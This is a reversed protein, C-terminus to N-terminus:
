SIFCLDKDLIYIKENEVKYDESDQIFIISIKSYYAQKCIMKMESPLFYKKLDILCLVTAGTLSSIVKIYECLLETLNSCSNSDIQVHYLKFFGAIDTHIDFGINNYPIQETIADLFSVAASDVDSLLEDFEMSVTKLKDYLRNLIKRDNFDIGFPNIVVEMNKDIRVAKDRESLLFEGDGGKAQTNIDKVIEAFCRPNEVILSVISDEKIEIAIGYKSYALIM